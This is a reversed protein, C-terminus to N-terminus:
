WILDLCCVLYHGSSDSVDNVLDYSLILQKLAKMRGPYKM